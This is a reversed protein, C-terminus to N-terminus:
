FSIAVITATLLTLGSVWTGLSDSGSVKEDKCGSGNSCLCSTGGGYYTPPDYYWFEIQPYDTSTYDRCYRECNETNNGFSQYMALSQCTPLVGDAPPPPPGGCYFFTGNNPVEAMCECQKYEDIWGGKFTTGPTSTDQKCTDDCTSVDTVNVDACTFHKDTTAGCIYRENERIIFSGGRWGCHCFQPYLPEGDPGENTPGFAPPNADPGVPGFYMLCSARCEDYNTIGMSKCTSKPNYTPDVVGGVAPKECEPYDGTGCGEPKPDEMCCAPFGGTSPFCTTNPSYTCFNSGMMNGGGGVILGGGTSTETENSSTQNTQALAGSLFAVAIHLRM